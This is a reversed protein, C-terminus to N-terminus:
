TLGEDRSLKFVSQLREPLAEVAARLTPELEKLETKVAADGAGDQFYSILSDLYAQEDGDAVRKFLESNIHIIEASM